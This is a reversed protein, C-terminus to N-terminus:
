NQWSKETRFSVVQTAWVHFHLPDASIDVAASCFNWFSSPSGLPCRLVWIFASNGCGSWESNWCGSVPLRLAMGLYMWACRRKQGVTHKLFVRSWFLASLFHSQFLPYVPQSSLGLVLRGADVSARGVWYSQSRACTACRKHEWRVPLHTNAAGRLPDSYPDLSGASASKKYLALISGLYTLKLTQNIRSNNEGSLKCALTHQLCICVM